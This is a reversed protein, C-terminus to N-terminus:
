YQSYFDIKNVHEFEYILNESFQGCYQVAKLM